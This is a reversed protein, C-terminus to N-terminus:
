QLLLGITRAKSVAQTRNVVDLKRLIASVHTKVTSSSIFLTACINLNSAGDAMLQLVDLERATLNQLESHHVTFKSSFSEPNVLAFAIASTIEQLSQSKSLYANAGASQSAKVFQEGSNLSLVIIATTKSFKRVWQVIEFGSGDPLNLDVIVADPNLAAVKSRAQAVTAATQIDEFGASALAACLGNRVVEHDDVILFRTM